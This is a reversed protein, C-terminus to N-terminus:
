AEHERSEKQWIKLYYFRIEEQNWQQFITEICQDKDEFVDIDNNEGEDDHVVAKKRYDVCELDNNVM